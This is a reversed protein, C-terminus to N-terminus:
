VHRAQTPPLTSERAGETLRGHPARRKLADATIVRPLPPELDVDVATESLCATVVDNSAEIVDCVHLPRRCVPCWVPSGLGQQHATHRQLCPACFKHGCRRMTVLELRAVVAAPEDAAPPTPSLGSCDSQVEEGAQGLCIACSESQDCEVCREATDDARTSIPAPADAMELQAVVM